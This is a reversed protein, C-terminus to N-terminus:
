FCQPPLISPSSEHEPQDECMQLRVAANGDSPLKLSGSKWELVLLDISIEDVLKFSWLLLTCTQMKPTILLFVSFSAAAINHMVVKM